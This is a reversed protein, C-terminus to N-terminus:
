LIAGVGTLMLKITACMHPSIRLRQLRGKSDLVSRQQFRNTPHTTTIGSSPPVFLVDGARFLLWLDTFRVKTRSIGDFRKYLPMIEADIFEVYCRMDRLAKLGNRVTELNEEDSEDSKESANDAAELSVLGDWADTDVAGHTTTKAGFTKKEVGLADLKEAEAWQAELKNLAEKMKPQFHIFARFPRIFTRPSALTWSKSTEKSLHAIVARSRIRVRQIWGDEPKGSLETNNPEEASPTKKIKPDKMDKERKSEERRIDDDLNAGAVLVEIAYIDDKEDFRNKFHEYDIKKIGHIWKPEFNKVEEKKADEPSDKPNVEPPKPIPSNGENTNEEDTSLIPNGGENKNEEDTSLIPNSDENTKEKDVSLSNKPTTSIGNSESIPDWKETEDPIVKSSDIFNGVFDASLSAVTVAVDLKQPSENKPPTSDNLSNLAEVGPEM